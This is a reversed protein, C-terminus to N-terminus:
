AQAVALKATLDDIEDDKRTIIRDLKDRETDHERTKEFIVQDFRSVERKLRHNEKTLTEHDQQLLEVRLDYERRLM